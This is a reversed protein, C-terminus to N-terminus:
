IRENQAHRAFFAYVTTINLFETRVVFFYYQQWRGSSISGSATNLIQVWKREYILEKALAFQWLLRACYEVEEIVPWSNITFNNINTKYM